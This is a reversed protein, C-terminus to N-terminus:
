HPLLYEQYKGSVKDLIVIWSTLEAKTAGIRKVEVIEYRDHPFILKAYTMATLLLGFILLYKKVM